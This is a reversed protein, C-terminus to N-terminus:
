LLFGSPFNGLQVLRDARIALCALGKVMDAIKRNSKQPTAKLVKAILERRQEATLHRRHVNYSLVLAYLDGCIVNDWRIQHHRPTATEFWRQGDWKKTTCLRGKENVCLLGLLALANSGIAATM